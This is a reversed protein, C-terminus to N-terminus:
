PGANGMTGLVADVYRTVLSQLTTLSDPDSLELTVGEGGPGGRVCVSTCGVDVECAAWSHVCVRYLTSEGDCIHRPKRSTLSTGRIELLLLGIAGSIESV